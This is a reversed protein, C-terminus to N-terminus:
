RCALCRARYRHPAWCAAPDIREHTSAHVIEASQLPPLGKGEVLKVIGDM